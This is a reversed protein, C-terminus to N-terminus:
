ILNFCDRCIFYALFVLFISAMNGVFYYDNSIECDKGLKTGIKLAGFAILMQPFGLYLAFFLCSRELIGKCMAAIKKRKKSKQQEETEDSPLM